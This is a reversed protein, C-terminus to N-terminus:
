SPPLSVKLKKTEDIPHDELVFTTTTVPSQSEELVPPEVPHIAEIAIFTKDKLGNEQELSKM